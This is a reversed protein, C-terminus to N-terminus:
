TGPTLGLLSALILVLVAVLALMLIILVLPVLYESWKSSTFRKSPRSM